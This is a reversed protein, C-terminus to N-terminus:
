FKLILPEQYSPVIVSIHSEISNFTIPCSNSIQCGVLALLKDFMNRL